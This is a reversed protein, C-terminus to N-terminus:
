TGRGARGLVFAACGLPKASMESVNDTARRELVDLLEEYYDGWQFWSTSGRHMKLTLTANAVLAIDPGSFKVPVLEGAENYTMVQSSTTSGLARARQTGEHEKVIAQLVTKFVTDHRYGLEAYATCIAAMQGAPMSAFTPHLVARGVAGM